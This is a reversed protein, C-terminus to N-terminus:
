KLFPKAHYILASVQAAEPPLAPGYRYERSNHQILFHQHYRDKPCDHPWTELAFWESLALRRQGGHTYTFIM